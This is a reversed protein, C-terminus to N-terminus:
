PLKRSWNRLTAPTVGYANALVRIEAHPMAKQIRGRGQDSSVAEMIIQRYAAVVRTRKDIPHPSPKSM